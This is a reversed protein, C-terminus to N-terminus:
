LIVERYGERGCKAILDASLKEVKEQLFPKFNNEKSDALMKLYTSLGEM